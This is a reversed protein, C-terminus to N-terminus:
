NFSDCLEISTMCDRMIGQQIENRGAVEIHGLARLCLTVHTKDKKSALSEALFNDGYTVVKSGARSREILTDIDNGEHSEPHKGAEEIAM